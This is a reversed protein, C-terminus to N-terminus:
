ISFTFPVKLENVDVVTMKDIIKSDNNAKEQGNKIENIGPDSQLWSKLSEVQVESWVGPIEKIENQTM